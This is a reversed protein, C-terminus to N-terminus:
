RAPATAGQAREGLEEPTLDELHTAISWHHGYPDTLTGSRDGWLQDAVEQNVTAGESVAQDFVADVDEVYMFMSTTTGGLALPARVEDDTTDSLMIVSDGIELAAHAIRGDEAEMRGRERAGFARKYFDIASAANDVALYATLTHYGEPVAKSAM